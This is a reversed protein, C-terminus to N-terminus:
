RCSRSGHDIYACERRLPEERLEEPSHFPALLNHNGPAALGHGAQHRSHGSRARFRGHGYEAPKALARAARAEVPEVPCFPTGITILPPRRAAAARSTLTGAAGLHRHISPTLDYPPTSIRLRRPM